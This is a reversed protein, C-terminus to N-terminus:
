KSPSSSTAFSRRMDRWKCTLPVEITELSYTPISIDSSKNAELIAKEEGACVKVPM